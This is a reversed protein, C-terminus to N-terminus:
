KFYREITSAEVNNLLNIFFIYVFLNLTNVYESKRWEQALKYAYLGMCDCPLFPIESKLGMDSQFLM